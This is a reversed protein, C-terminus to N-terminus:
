HPIERLKFTTYEERSIKKESIQILVHFYEGSLREETCGCDMCIRAYKTRDKSGVWNAERIHTHPCHARFTELHKAINKKLLRVHNRLAIIRGRIAQTESENLRDENEFSM